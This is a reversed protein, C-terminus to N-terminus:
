QLLGPYATGREHSDSYSFYRGPSLMVVAPFAAIQRMRDSALLDLDGGSLDRIMEFLCVVNSLGYHWYGVGEGSSGDEHFATTLFADLGEMVQELIARRRDASSEVLLAVAGVGGNCVGNWNSSGKFWHLRGIQELYPTLIREDLAERVRTVVREDLQEKLAVIIEAM